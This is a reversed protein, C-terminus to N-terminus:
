AVATKDHPTLPLTVPACNIVRSSYIQGPQWNPNQYNTEKCDLTLNVTGYGGFTIPYQPDEDDCSWTQNINLQRSPWSFSFSTKTGSGEPVSCNYNINGYFFDSLWTSYATCSVKEPFAPNTLNFTVDGGSIQHAPTSFTYSAYYAFNEITWAFDGFSIATCGPTSDRPGLGYPAAAALPLVATLAGIFNHM